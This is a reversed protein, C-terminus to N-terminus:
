TPALSDERLASALLNALEAEDIPKGVLASNGLAWVAAQVAANDAYATCFIIPLKSSQRIVSAANLGSGNALRIDMLLGDPRHERVAQIAGLESDATASVRYGLNEVLATLAWALITEDEVIVLTPREM